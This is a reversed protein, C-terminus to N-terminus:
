EFYRVAIMMWLLFISLLVMFVAASCIDKVKRSFECMEPSVKDVLSEVATNLLEVALLFLWASAMLCKTLVNERSLAVLLLHPVGLLVDMRFSGEERFADRIGRVSNKTKSILKFRGHPRVGDISKRQYNMRQCEGGDKM